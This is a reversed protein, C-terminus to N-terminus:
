IDSETQRIEITESRWSIVAQTFMKFSLILPASQVSSLSGGNTAAFVAYIGEDGRTV